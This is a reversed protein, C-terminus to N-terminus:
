ESAKEFLEFSTSIAGTAASGDYLGLVCIDNPSTLGTCHKVLDEKEYITQTSPVFPPRKPVVYNGVLSTIYEEM